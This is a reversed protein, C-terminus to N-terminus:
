LCKVEKNEHMLKLMELKERLSKSEDTETGTRLQEKFNLIM